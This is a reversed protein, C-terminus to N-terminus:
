TNVGESICGATLADVAHSGITSRKLTTTNMLFPSQDGQRDLHLTIRSEIRWERTVFSIGGGYLFFWAMLPYFRPSTDPANWNDSSRISRKGLTHANWEGLRNVPSHFDTSRLLCPFSPRYIVSITWSIPVYSTTSVRESLLSLQRRRQWFTSITYVATARRVSLNASTVLGGRPPLRAFSRKAGAGAASCDRYICSREGLRYVAPYKRYTYGIRDVNM